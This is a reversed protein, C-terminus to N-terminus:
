GGSHRLKELQRDIESDMCEYDRTVPFVNGSTSILNSEFTQFDLSQGRKQEILKEIELLDKCTDVSRGTVRKFFYGFDIM